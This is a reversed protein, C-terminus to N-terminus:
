KTLRSKHITLVREAGTNANVCKIRVSHYVVDVFNFVCNNGNFVLQENSDFFDTGNPSVQFTPTLDAINDVSIIYSVNSTHPLNFTETFTTANRTASHTETLTILKM